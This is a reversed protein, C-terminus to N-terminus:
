AQILWKPRNLGSDAWNRAFRGSNSGRRNANARTPSFCTSDVHCSVAPSAPLPMGQADSTPAAGRTNRGYKM